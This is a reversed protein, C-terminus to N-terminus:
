KDRDRRDLVTYNLPTQRIAQAARMRVYQNSDAEALGLLYEQQRDRTTDAVLADVARIRVAPNPDHLLAGLIAQETTHDRPAKALAELAKIRVGDNKDNVLAFALAQRAQESIHSATALGEVSRLRAGSNGDNKVAWALLNQILEDQPKGELKFDQTAKFSVQVLGNSEDVDKIRLDSITAGENLAKEAIVSPMSATMQSQEPSAFYPMRTTDTTFFYKGIVLGIALMGLAMAPRWLKLWSGSLAGKWPLGSLHSTSKEMRLRASLRARSAVLAEPEALAPTRITLVSFLRDFEVKKAQCNPCNQLHELWGSEGGEPLPEGYTKLWYLEEFQRCDM